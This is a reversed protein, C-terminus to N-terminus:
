AKSSVAGKERGAAEEFVPFEPAVPLGPWASFKGEAPFTCSPTSSPLALTRVRALSRHLLGLGSLGPGLTHGLLWYIFVLLWCSISLWARPYKVGGLIVQLGQHVLSCARNQYPLTKKFWAQCLISM